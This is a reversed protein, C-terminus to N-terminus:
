RDSHDFLGLLSTMALSFVELRAAVAADLTRVSLELLLFDFDAAPEARECTLGLLTVEELAADAADRVRLSVAVLLREFVAAPEARVCRAALFRQPLLKDPLLGARVAAYSFHQRHGDGLLQPM